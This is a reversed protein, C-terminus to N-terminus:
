PGPRSCTAFLAAHCTRLAEVRVARQSGPLITSQSPHEFEPACDDRFPVTVGSPPLIKVIAGTVSVRNPEINMDNGMPLLNNQM